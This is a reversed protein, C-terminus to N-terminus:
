IKIHADIIHHNLRTQDKGPLYTPLAPLCLMFRAQDVRKWDAGHRKHEGISTVSLSYTPFTVFLAALM